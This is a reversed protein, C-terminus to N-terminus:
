TVFVRSHSDNPEPHDITASKLSLGIKPMDNRKKLGSQSLSRLIKSHNSM